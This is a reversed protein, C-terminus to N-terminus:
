KLSIASLTSNFPLAVINRRNRYLNNGNTPNVMNEDIKAYIGYELSYFIKNNFIKNNTIKSLLYIGTRNYQVDNKSIENGNTKIYFAVYNNHLKNSRFINEDSKDYTYVGYQTNGSINNKEVLNHISVDNARIGRKNNIIQNNRIINYSSDWIAIGDTNEYLKNGEILNNNSNQHLMIGHLKNGYSINNRIVNEVCRKSFILGHSGNNHFVNNEVLFGNSDDHPDLGYRVNNYFENKRWVMGTAGYTYAGFYNNHFKSREVNGTLLTSGLKGTSMRWSVGYPSTEPSLARPYGLYGLDSDAIDMRSGDKVLIYSRGDQMERDYDNKATDWSTVKVGNIEITTNLGRIYAFNNKTSLLKLWTVESKDINLTTGSKLYLNAKLLWIRPAEEDILDKGVRNRIDALNVTKGRGSVIITNTGQDYTISLFDDYFRQYNFRAYGTLTTGKAPISFILGAPIRNWNTIKSVNALLVTSFDSGYETAINGIWDGAKTEYRQVLHKGVITETKLTVPNIPTEKVGKIPLTNAILKEEQARPIFYTLNKYAYVGLGLLILVIMTFAYAPVERIFRLQPMRSKDWRTIWGQTNITFLAYLKLFGTTFTYLIFTPLMFIDRPKRRLHPFMKITRSIFWWILIILAISYIGMLLSVIFFIPSLMVAISQFIKDIQFFVLAPHRFVWGEKIAKLDARLANRSWRIRQQLYSKIDAMGPTYVHSNSQFYVKWGHSLVLYTLRKDDGSIVPKGMFTENVLANLMPLIVRRRYFATRGSLCVLADGAASLFPMEDRYRIDLQIDFIRQAPTKPNLVNQYTGVGGMKKDNFPPLANKIVDKEWLTDSDVLAVIEGKAKKIGLALAPRKGPVKTIILKGSKFKKKFDRFIKICKKDTYDIVAIIEQPKNKVWTELAKSFVKPNENYVPTVISVSAKYPTKKPRYKLAVLEKLLWIGWRWFGIIGLPVVYPHADVYQQAYFAFDNM